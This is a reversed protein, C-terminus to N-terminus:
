KAHLKIWSAIDQVVEEAVHGAIAYTAPRAKGGSEVPMFLHSLAPYSKFQVAKRDALAHKWLQFDEMTVQYDSEGQLILLPQPLTRAVEEPHYGRLALWYAAPVGFPLTAAPTDPSLDSAKAQAVQKKVENLHKQHEPTITGDLSYIYTFQDLITDELPRALGALAILGAIETDAKGILPLVYGGLSHGLVFIHRTDLQPTCHLLLAVADLADDIVEEQVTLSNLREQIQAGYVRTRKDYRLVAIGQSALGWALDRFPKNPGLTEDRDNPGSGHVLIVAPFPRDGNPLSLTGPLKWEGRGVEAEQEHFLDQRAYAPVDDHAALQQDTYGAPTITLGIIQDNSSFVVNIDMNITGFACTVVVIEGQPSHTIHIDVQEKFPGMQTEVGQWGAQLQEATFRERINSEARQWAGVFDGQSLQTVILQATELHNNNM